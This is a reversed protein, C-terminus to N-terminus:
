VKYIYFGQLAGDLGMKLTKYIREYPLRQPALVETVSKQPQNKNEVLYSVVCDWKGQSKAVQELRFDVPEDGILTTTLERTKPYLDKLEM